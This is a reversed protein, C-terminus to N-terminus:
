TRALALAALSNSNQPTNLSTSHFFQSRLQRIGLEDSGEESRRVQSSEWDRM